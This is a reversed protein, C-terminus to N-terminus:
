GPFGIAYPIKGLFPSGVATAVKSISPQAAHFWLESNIEDWAWGEVGRLARFSEDYRRWNGGRECLSRIIHGYKLFQPAYISRYTCMVSYTLPRPGCVAHASRPRQNPRLANHCPM